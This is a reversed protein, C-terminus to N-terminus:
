QKIWKISKLLNNDTSHLKIFYIGKSLNSINIHYDNKDFNSSLIMSGQM